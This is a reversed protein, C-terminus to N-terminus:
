KGIRIGLQRLISNYIDIINTRPTLSVVINEDYPLYKSVLATKGQKSSGYVDIQRDSELAATFKNDVSERIIYSLVPKASVGFVDALEVPM